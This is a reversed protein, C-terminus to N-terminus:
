KKWAEIDFFSFKSTQYDLSSLPYVLFCPLFLQCSGERVLLNAFKSQANFASLFLYTAMNLLFISISVVNQWLIGPWILLSRQHRGQCQPPLFHQFCSKKNFSLMWSAYHIVDLKDCIVACSCRWQSLLMAFTSYKSGELGGRHFLSRFFAM